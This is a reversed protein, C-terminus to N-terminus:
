VRRLWLSRPEVNAGSGVVPCVELLEHHHNRNLYNLAAIIKFSGNYALFAEILYQEDWLKQDRLVWEEPYDRPTFIDHIHILVGSKLRGLVELVEFLVDGQTRIVHSSDIFLIDGSELADFLSPDCLEARRRLIEAGTQELWPQEYPEICLHRCSYGADDSRNKEIARRVMLTSHGSGIEFFRKPRFRRIMSYLVGADAGEFSGNNFYFSRTSAEANKQVPIKRLENGHRLETLLQLQEATNLDLGPISREQDLPRRLNEAFVVPEYYHERLPFVGAVRLVRRTMPVHAWARRARRLLMGAPLAFIAIAFDVIARRVKKVSAVKNSGLNPLALKSRRCWSACPTALSM